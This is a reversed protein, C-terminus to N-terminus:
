CVSDTPAPNGLGFLPRLRLGLWTGALASLGWLWGGLSGTSIGALYGGINCGGALRAGIGMLIGGLVSALVTRIPISTRLKWAGAAAAAVAAGIMIGVDTLTTKDTWASSSLAPATRAQQWFAWTEPHLGVLQLFKAGWLAFAFTVGWLSGSVLLVAGALLGLVVAGVLLPWSGRLIRGPGRTSPVADTPPPNRRAQVRRSVVAVIILALVTILWAGGWGVHDSLLVGPLEPWGTFVPYTATYIVSGVIFGFLTLVVASQGSGVAFLTGSACANGLQMGVAFLAAGVILPLGLPAPKVAPTAGFLGIGTATILMVASAATGLLLTHARLGTGSGVAILQRWASTFGFRSHFLTFGLLLGVVLLAASGIGHRAGVWGVVGVALVLAIILPRRRVPGLSAPRPTSRSTRGPGAVRSLLPRDLLSTM